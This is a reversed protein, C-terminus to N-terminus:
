QSSVHQRGPQTIPQTSFGQPKSHMRGMVGGGAPLMKAGNGGFTPVALRVSDYRPSAETSALNPAPSLCDRWHVAPRDPFQVAGGGHVFLLPRPAGWGQKLKYLWM